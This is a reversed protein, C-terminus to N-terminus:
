VEAVKAAFIDIRPESRLGMNMFFMIVSIVVLGLCRRRFTTYDTAREIEYLSNSFRCTEFINSAYYEHAKTAVNEVSRFIMDLFFLRSKISIASHVLKSTCGSTGERAGREGCGLETAPGVQSKQTVGGSGAM